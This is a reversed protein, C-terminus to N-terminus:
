YADPLDNLFLVADGSSLTEALYKQAADLTPVILLKEAAGGQDLYGAKVAGVLTTGVLVVCDLGALRAGLERSLMEELIGTEVLGPTVAFKRGQFRKLAEIAEAAGLPNSNYSDDLIYVGGNETLELRHPTPVLKAAGAEIEAATLGLKEALTAALAINEASHRGLLKTKIHATGSALVLDFETDACGLRVNKLVDSFCAFVCKEREEESLFEANELRERLREGCYVPGKAGRLIECKGKLVNEESGFSEVHQACVGTFLAFDPNVLECLEKIDGARRAGMEAILVENGAFEKSTVTKAIGVPTNFSHPTAIVSYKESLLTKLINKVSTKGYSGVVAIRLIKTENLVQGARKVFKENRANEFPSSVANSLAFIAPLLLPFLSYPTFKFCAVLPNGIVEGCFELLSLGLFSFAALFFVYVAALRKIRGTTKLPVKLAYKGDAIFFLLSVLMLPLLSLGAAVTEGAFSFCVAFLASLLASLMTWLVIRNYFLNDKRKLWRFFGKGRYNSQQLAGFMKLSGAFFFGTGAVCAAIRLWLDNM